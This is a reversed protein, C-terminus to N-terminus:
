TRRVRPKTRKLFSWSRAKRAWLQVSEPEAVVVFCLGVVPVTFLDTPDPTCAVPRLPQWSLSLMCRVPWQLAALGVQYAETCVPVLQVASFVGATLLCCIALVSRRHQWVREAM